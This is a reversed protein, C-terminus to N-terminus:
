RPPNGKLEGAKGDRFCSNCITHLKGGSKVYNGKIKGFFTTKIEKGCVDCKM